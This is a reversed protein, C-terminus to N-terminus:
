VMAATTAAWPDRQAALSDRGAHSIEPKRAVVRHELRTTHSITSHM